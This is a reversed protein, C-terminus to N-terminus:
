HGGDACQAYASGAFADSGDDSCSAVLALVVSGLLIKKLFVNYM